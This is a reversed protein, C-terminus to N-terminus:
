DDDGDDNDYYDGGDDDEPGDMGYDENLVYMAPLKTSEHYPKRAVWRVFAETEDEVTTRIARRSINTKLLKM